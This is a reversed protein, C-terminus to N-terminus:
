CTYIAFENDEDKVHTHFLSYAYTKEISSPISSNQHEIYLMYHREKNFEHHSTYTAQKERLGM